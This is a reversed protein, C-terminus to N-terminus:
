DIIREEPIEYNRYFDLLEEFCDERQLVYDIAQFNNKLQLYGDYLTDYNGINNLLPYKTILIIIEETSLQDLTDIPIQLAEIKNTYTGLEDWCEKDPTYVYEYGDETEIIVGDDINNESASVSRCNFIIFCMTCVLLSVITKKTKRM